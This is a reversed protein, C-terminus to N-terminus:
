FMMAVVTADDRKKMRPYNLAGEDQEQLTYLREYIRAIDNESNIENLLEKETLFKFTDFVQSYGDSMILVKKILDEKIVTYIGNDIAEVSDALVFYGGARNKKMRGNKVHEPYKKRIESVTSNEKKALSYYIALNIEDVVDVKSDNLRFAYGDKTEFLIPSDAIIYVELEGGRRRVISATTSPFDIYENKGSMENYVKRCEKVGQKLIEPITVEMDKLNEILYEKWWDSVWEADTNFESYREKTLSTAGDLVFCFDQSIFFRDENWARGPKTFAFVEM